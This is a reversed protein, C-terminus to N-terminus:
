GQLERASVCTLPSIMDNHDNNVTFWRTALTPRCRTWSRKSWTVLMVGEGLQHYACSSKCAHTIHAAPAAVGQATPVSLGEAALTALHPSTRARHPSSRRPMRSHAAHCLLPEPRCAMTWQHPGSPNTTSRLQLIPVTRVQLLVFRSRAHSFINSPLLTMEILFYM